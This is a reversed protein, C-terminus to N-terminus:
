GRGKLAEQVSIEKGDPGRFTMKHPWTMEIKDLLDRALRNWDSGAKLEYVSFQIGRYALPSNIQTLWPRDIADINVGAESCLNLDRWMITGRRIEEDSRFSLSQKEGFDVFLRTLMPWDDAMLKIEGAVQPGISARGDRFLNHCSSDRVVSPLGFLACTLLLAIAIRWPGTRRKGPHAEMANPAEIRQRSLRLALWFTLGGALGFAGAFGVAQAYEIWGALTPVGNIVTAKGDTSANQVGFMSILDLVALPATGVLFGGLACSIIGVRSLSRLFLFLPLGLLLAHALVVVLTIRALSLVQSVVVINWPEEIETLTLVTFLLTVVVASLLAAALSSIFERSPM